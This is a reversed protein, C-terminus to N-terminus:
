PLKYSIKERASQQFTGEAAPRASTSTFETSGQIGSVKGTGGVITGTGKSSRGAQGADKYIIFWQDGDPRTFACSGSGDEWVGKVLHLSGVCRMSANHVFGEGTDSILVGMFEYIIQRREQGMSLAKLTGSYGCQYSITGEKPIQAQAASGFAILLFLSLMMAFIMKKM